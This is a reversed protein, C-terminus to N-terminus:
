KDYSAKNSSPNIVKGNEIDKFKELKKMAAKKKIEKEKESIKKKKKKSESDFYSIGAMLGALGAIKSMM